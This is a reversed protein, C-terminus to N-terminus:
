QTVTEIYLPKLKLGILTLVEGRDGRRILSLPTRLVSHPGEKYQMWIFVAINTNYIQFKFIGYRVM